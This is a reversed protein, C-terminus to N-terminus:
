NILEKKIEDYEEKKGCYPCIIADFPIKRGCDSCYRIRHTRDMSKEIKDKKYICSGVIVFIGIFFSAYIGIVFISMFFVIQDVDVDKGSYIDDVVEDKKEEFYEEVPFFYIFYTGIFLLIIGIILGIKHM